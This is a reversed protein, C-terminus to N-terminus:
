TGFLRRAHSFNETLIRTFRDLANPAAEEAAAPAGSATSNCTIGETSCSSSHGIFEQFSTMALQSFLTSALNAFPDEPELAQRQAILEALARQRQMASHIMRKMLAPESHMIQMFSGMDTPPVDMTAYAKIFLELLAQDLPLATTSGSSSAVSTRASDLFDQAFPKFPDASKVGLVADEKTAFYNFFTRRSVGAAECLEEITFGNLEREATLTRAHNTLAAYTEMRRRERAGPAETASKKM